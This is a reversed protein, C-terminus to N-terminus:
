LARLIYFWRAWRTYGIAAVETASASDPVHLPSDETREITVPRREKAAHQGTAVVGQHASGQGVGGM